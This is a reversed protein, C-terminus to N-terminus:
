NCPKIRIDRGYYPKLQKERRDKERYYIKRIKSRLELEKSIGTIGLWEKLDRKYVKDALEECAKHISLGQKALKKVRHYIMADRLQNTRQQTTPGKIRDLYDRYRDNMDWNRMWKEYESWVWPEEIHSFDAKIVEVIIEARKRKFKKRESNTKAKAPDLEDFRNKYPELFKQRNEVAKDVFKQFSM